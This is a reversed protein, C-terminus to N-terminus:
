IRRLEAPILRRVLVEIPMPEGNGYTPCEIGLRKLFLADDFAGLDAAQIYEPSM